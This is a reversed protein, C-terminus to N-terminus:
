EGGEEEKLMEQLERLEDRVDHLVEVVERGLAALAQPNMFPPLAAAPAHLQRRMATLSLRDEERLRKIEMILQLDSFRYVRHRSRRRQPKLLKGQTEWYRLMHTPVGTLRSVEGITYFEKRPFEEEM